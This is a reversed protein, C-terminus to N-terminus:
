SAEPIPKGMYTPVYKKASPTRNDNAAGFDPDNDLMLHMKVVKRGAVAVLIWEM